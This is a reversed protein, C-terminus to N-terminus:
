FVHFTPYIQKQKGFKIFNSSYIRVRHAYQTRSHLNQHEALHLGQRRVASLDQRFERSGGELLAQWVPRHIQFFHERGLNFLGEDSAGDM